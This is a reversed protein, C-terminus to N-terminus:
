SSSAPRGGNLPRDGWPMSAAWTVVVGSGTVRCRSVTGGASAAKIM